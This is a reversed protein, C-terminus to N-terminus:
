WGGPWRLRPGDTTYMGIVIWVAGADHKDLGRLWSLLHTAGVGVGASVGFM